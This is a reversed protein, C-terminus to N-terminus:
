GRERGKEWRPLLSNSHPQGLAPARAAVPAVIKVEGAREFKLTLPVAGGSKLGSKLGMLMIHNGGPALALRGKPPVPAGDKLARMRMVNNVTKMEHVEAREAAPTSVSVLRDAAAGDNVVTFYVAGTKAAPPTERAWAGEVHVVAALVPGPAAYLAAAALIAHIRKM